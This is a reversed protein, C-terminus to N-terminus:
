SGECRPIRVPPVRLTSLAWVGKGVLVTIPGVAPPGDGEFSPLLDEAVLAAGSEVDVNLAIAETDAEGSVRSVDVPIEIASPTPEIAVPVIVFLKELRERLTARRRKIAIIFQIVAARCLRGAYWATTAILKENSVFICEM